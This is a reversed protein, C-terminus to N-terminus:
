NNNQESSVSIELSKLINKITKEYKGESVIQNFKEEVLSKNWSGYVEQGDVHLTYWPWPNGFRLEEVIELKM